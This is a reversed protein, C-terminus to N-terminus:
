KHPDATLVGCDLIHAVSSPALKGAFAFDGIILKGQRARAAPGVAVALLLFLTTATRPVM